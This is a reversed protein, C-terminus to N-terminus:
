VRAAALDPLSRHPDEVVASRFVPTVFAGPLFAGGPLALWHFSPVPMPLTIAWAEM